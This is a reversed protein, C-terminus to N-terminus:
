KEVVTNDELWDIGDRIRGYVDGQWGHGGRYTNLRVTAGQERLDKEAKEAMFFPCVQDEPSHDVFYAHGKANELLPLLEPKFVSMAVYSGTIPTNEALSIAYGAPGGSSWSLSFIHRADIKHRNKVDAVIAEVFDETAFEQGKTTFSRTPWVIQQTPQWVAALPQAIVYEESLAHKLIRRVFPNFDAGGDGGPLAVVLKYGNEPPDGDAKPGIMFYRMRDNGDANLDLSLIDAVDAAPDPAISTISDDSVRGSLYVARVNDFWVKGPGYIQLAIKIHACGNPIAVQGSYDKWDHSVHLEYPGRSGIYSAWQHSITNSENDLFIVDVIAKTVEEAKVQVSVELSPSDGERLAAQSWQAIPLYRDATKHLCLSSETSYGVPQVWIYEVGPIAAGKKWADPEAEGEEMSPNDLKLQAVPAVSSLTPRTEQGSQALDSDSTGEEERQTPRANTLNMMRQYPVVAQWLVFVVVGILVPRQVQSKTLDGGGRQTKAFYFRWASATLVVMALTPLAAFPDAMGYGFSLVTFELLFLVFAWRWGAALGVVFLCSTAFWITAMSDDPVFPAVRRANAVLLVAVIWIQWPVRGLGTLLGKSWGGAAGQGGETTPTAVITEVRTKLVSVHQYRRDPEEELARLVVDDLRVDVRVRRSPPEIPRHPLDGTLLQYFVVGLSYVDARHDVELPHEIQEPAMYQPTGIVKDASSLISPGSAAGQEGTVEEVGGMLKALGFDAVKVNGQRDLLINEPKIDRHVIGQDHAYQLADCIQPVIRLAERPSVQQRRTLEGLNIGDVFEMVFYFLGGETQGFDHITVIGPHSLKAMAKAERAFREAFATDDGIDPPLIKLAVIRDLQKQRAKYVAGMGGQGIFELVELQPFSDAIEEVPPPVFRPNRHAADHATSAPDIEAHTGLGGRMLCEPCLGGPANVPLPRKCAPCATQSNMSSLPKGEFWTPSVQRTDSTSKFAVPDESTAGPLLSGSWFHGLPTNLM